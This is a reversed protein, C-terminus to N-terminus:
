KSVRMSLKIEVLGSYITGINNLLINLREICDIQGNSITVQVIASAKFVQDLDETLLQM